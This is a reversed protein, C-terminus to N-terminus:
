ETEKEGEYFWCPKASTFSKDKCIDHKTCNGCTEGIAIEWNNKGARKSSFTIDKYQKTSCIMIHGDQPKFYHYPPQDWLCIREKEWGMSFGHEVFAVLSGQDHRGVIGYMKTNLPTKKM